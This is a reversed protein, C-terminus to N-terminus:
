TEGHEAAASVVETGLGLGFLLVGIAAGVLIASAYAFNVALRQGGVAALQMFALFTAHGILIAAAALAIGFRHSRLFTIRALFFELLPFAFAALLYPSLGGFLAAVALVGTGLSLVLWPRALVSRAQPENLVLLFM